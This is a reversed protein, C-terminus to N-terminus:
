NEHQMDMRMQSMDLDKSSAILDCSDVEVIANASAIEVREGNLIPKSSKVNLERKFLQVPAVELIRARDTVFVIMGSASHFGCALVVGEKGSLQIEDIESQPLATMYQPIEIKTTRANKSLKL